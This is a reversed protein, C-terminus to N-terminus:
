GKKALNRIYSVLEKAEEARLRSKYGPMKAKGNMIIEIMEADSEKQVELSGFDRARTKKGMDTTGKGDAGHCIDCHARYYSEAFAQARALQSSSLLFAFLFAAKWFALAANKGMFADKKCDMIRGAM